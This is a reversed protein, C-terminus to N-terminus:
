AYFEDKVFERTEEVAASIRSELESDEMVGGYDLRGRYDDNAWESPYSRSNYQPVGDTLGWEIAVHNSARVTVRELEPESM